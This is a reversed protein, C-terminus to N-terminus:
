FPLMGRIGRFFIVLFDWMKIVFGWFALSVDKGAVLLQKFFEVVPLLNIEPLERM